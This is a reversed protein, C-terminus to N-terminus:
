RGFTSSNHASSNQAFHALKSLIFLFRSIHIVVAHYCISLELNVTKYLMLQLNFCVPWFYLVGKIWQCLLGTSFITRSHMEYNVCTVILFIFQIFQVFYIFNFLSVPFLGEIKQNQPILHLSGTWRHTSFVWTSYDKWLFPIHFFIACWYTETPGIYGSFIWFSFM